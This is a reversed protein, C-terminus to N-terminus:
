KGSNVEGALSRLARYQALLDKLVDQRDTGGRQLHADFTALLHQERPTGFGVLVEQEGGVEYKMRGVTTSGIEKDFRVQFPQNREDILQYVTSGGDQYFGVEAIRPFTARRYDILQHLVQAVDNYKAHLKIKAGNWLLTQTEIPLSQDVFSQMAHLLVREDLSNLPLPILSDGVHPRTIGDALRRFMVLQQKGLGDKVKFTLAVTSRGLAVDTITTDRMRRYHALRNLLLTQQFREKTWASDQQDVDEAGEVRTRTESDFAQSAWNVLRAVFQQEQDSGPLLVQVKPGEGHLTGISLQCHFSTVGLCFTTTGTSDILIGGCSGDHQTVVREIRPAQAATSAILCAALLSAILANMIASPSRIATSAPEACNVTAAPKREALM